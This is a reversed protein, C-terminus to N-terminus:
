FEAQIKEYDRNIAQELEPNQPGAFKGRAFIEPPNKSLGRAILDAEAIGDFSKQDAPGHGFEAILYQPDVRTVGTVM